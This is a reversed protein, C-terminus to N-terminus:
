VFIKSAKHMIALIEFCDQHRQSIASVNYYASVMFYYEGFVFIINIRSFVHFFNLSSTVYYDWINYEIFILVIFMIFLDPTDLTHLFHLIFLCFMFFM